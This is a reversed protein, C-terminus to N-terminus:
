VKRRRTEKWEQFTNLTGFHTQKHPKYRPIDVMNSILVPLQKLTNIFYNLLLLIFCDCALM